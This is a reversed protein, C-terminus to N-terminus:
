CRATNISETVAYTSRTAFAARLLRLSFIPTHRILARARADHRLQMILLPPSLRRPAYFRCAFCILVYAFARMDFILLAFIFYLYVFLVPEPAFILRAYIMFLRLRFM